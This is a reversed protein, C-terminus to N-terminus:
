GQPVATFFYGEVTFGAAKAPAIYRTRDIAAPNTNDVVFSQGAELCARVLLEERERKKLMDLNIRVHTRFFHERYFTSKGTAPIGIFIVAQKRSSLLSSITSVSLERSM